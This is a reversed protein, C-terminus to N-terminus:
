EFAHAARPRSMDGSAGNTHSRKQTIKGYAHSHAFSPVAFVIEYQQRILFTRVCRSSVSYPYM